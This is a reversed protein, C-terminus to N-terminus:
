IFLEPYLDSVVTNIPLSGESHLHLVIYTNITLPVRTIDIPQDKHLRVTGWHFAYTYDIYWVVDQEDLYIGPVIDVTM